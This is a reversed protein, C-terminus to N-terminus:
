RKTTTMRVPSLDCRMMTKTQMKGLILWAPCKKMCRNYTPWEYISDPSIGVWTRQGYKSWTTEKKTVTNYSNWVYNPILGVAFYTSQLYKEWDTPQREMENITPQATASAKKMAARSTWSGMHSESKLPGEPPCEMSLIQGCVETTWAGQCDLLRATLPCGTMKTLCCDRPLPAQTGAMMDVRQLAGQPSRTLAAPQFGPSGWHQDGGTWGPCDAM